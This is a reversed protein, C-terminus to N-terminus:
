SKTSYHSLFLWRHNSVADEQAERRIEAWLAGQPLQGALQNQGWRPLVLEAPPAVDDTTVLFCNLFCESCASDCVHMSQACNCISVQNRCM